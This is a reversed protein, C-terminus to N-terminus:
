AWPSKPYKVKMALYATDAFDVAVPPRAARLSLARSRSGPEEEKLDM